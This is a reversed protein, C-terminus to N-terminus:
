AKIGLVKKEAKTLKSLASAKLKKVASGKKRKEEEKKKEVAEKAERKADIKKHEKWWVGLEGNEITDFFKVMVTGEFRECLACLLRSARDLNDRAEQLCRQLEFVSNDVPPYEMRCAM